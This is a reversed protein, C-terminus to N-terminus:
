PPRTGRFTLTMGGADWWGPTRPWSTVTGPLTERSPRLPKLGGVWPEPGAVVETKSVPVLARFPVVKSTDHGLNECAPEMQRAPQLADQVRWVREM